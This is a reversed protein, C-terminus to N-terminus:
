GAPRRHAAHVIRGCARVLKENQPRTGLTIRLFPGVVPRTIVGQELLAQFWSQADRDPVSVLLFNAQSPIVLFKLKRLEGALRRRESRALAVTRRVHAPDALAAAAAAQAIHNVNFPDRVRDLAEKIRRSAVGYGARLGALGYVKSFTRLVVVNERNAAWHLSAPRLKPELYEYYAEDLVVLCDSPVAELWNELAKPDVATGTPNNPNAILIMRTKPTVARALAELDFTFDKMPVTILSADQLQALTQYLVFSMQSTLVEEGPSVFARGLLILLESSGNGLLIQDPDTGLRGALAKRLRYCSGDPYLAAERLAQSGARVAAPSPGLPNENSALKIVRSLGLERKVEEIPKGPQYPAIAQVGSRIAPIKKM